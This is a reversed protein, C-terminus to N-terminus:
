NNGSTLQPLYEAITARESARNEWAKIIAQKAIAEKNVWAPNNVRLWTWAGDIYLYAIEQCALFYLGRMNAAKDEVTLFPDPAKPKIGPDEQERIIALAAAELEADRKEKPCKAAMDVCPKARLGHGAFYADYFCRMVLKSRKKRYRYEVSAPCSRCKAEAPTTM